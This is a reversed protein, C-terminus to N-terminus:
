EPCQTALYKLWEELERPEMAPHPDGDGPAAIHFVQGYRDAVLTVPGAGPAVRDLLARDADVLVDVRDGLEEQLGAAGAGADTVARTSGDWTRFDSAAGVLAQLYDRCRDCGPDHLAVVVVADRHSGRLPRVAKQEGARPLRLKPLRDGVQIERM